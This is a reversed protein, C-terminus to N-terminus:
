KPEGNVLIDGTNADIYYVFTYDPTGEIKLHIVWCTTDRFVTKEVIYENTKLDSINTGETLKSTYKKYKDLTNLHNIVISLAQDSSIKTTDDVAVSENQKAALMTLTGDEQIIMNIFNGTYVKDSKKERFILNYANGNENKVDKMDVLQYNSKDLRKVMEKASAEIEEKTKPAQKKYSEINSLTITNIDGNEEVQYDYTGDNLVQYKKGGITIDNIKKIKDPSKQSFKEIQKEFDVEAAKTPVIKLKIVSFCVISLACVISISLWTKRGVKKM